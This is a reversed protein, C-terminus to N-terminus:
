QVCCLRDFYNKFKIGKKLKLINYFTSNMEICAHKCTSPGIFPPPPPM